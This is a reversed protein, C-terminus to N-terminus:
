DIRVAKPLKIIYGDRVHMIESTRISTWGYKFSTHPSTLGAMEYMDAVSILGYEEIVEIMQDRVAEADRRTPYVIDDCDWRHSDSYRDDRRDRSDDRRDDYYRRYSVRNRSSSSSGGSRGGGDVGFIRHIAGTLADVIINKINPVIVDNVVYDKVTSAEDSIFISALKRGGNEKTKAAGSVVKQVKREQKEKAQEAQLEKSRYSNSQYETM